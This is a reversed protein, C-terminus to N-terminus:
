SRDAAPTKTRQGQSSPNKAKSGPLESPDEMSWPGYDRGEYKVSCSKLRGKDHPERLKGRGLGEQGQEVRSRSWTLGQVRWRCEEQKWEPLWWWQRRMLQEWGKGRCLDCTPLSLGDVWPLATQKARYHLVQWGWPPQRRVWEFVSFVLLWLPTNAQTYCVFMTVTILVWVLVVKLKPFHLWLWASTYTGAQCGCAKQQTM